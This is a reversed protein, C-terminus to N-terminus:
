AGPRVLLDLVHARGHEAFRNELAKVEAETLPEYAGDKGPRVWLTDAGEPDGYWAQRALVRTLVKNTQTHPLERAVRVYRPRWTPSLDPQDAQWAAFGAPDFEAGDRLVVAAMAQDGAAEDPVGYVAALVVDPHRALIRAVPASGFNEGGVRVWEGSRGAFFVLGDADRYALDGSWYWGERLRDATAADNNWYGEFAGAGDLNVLEGVAEDANLLRGSADFRGPPCEERTEPDLIRINGNPKGLAGSPMDAVPTFSLGGETSGFGDRVTCGFRRAFREVDQPGGENGFVRTLPNDADDPLEPTALIYSLPKGVYNAYTVGYARVDPLFGSASFRRRLVLSAGAAVAPAWCTIMANSHFLPMACYAVDEGTLRQMGVVSMGQTAIKGQSCVVAKPHGTTGSTLILMFPDDLTPEAEPLAAGAYPALAEAWGPEDVNWVREAPFDPLADRLQAAHAAGTILMTCGTHEVDRALEGGQRTPNLGVVVAGSVAAAALLFSFEPVNELLVGVHFPRGPDRQDALFAARQASLAVHEDWTWSRDEYRLAVSPDGARRRVLDNVSVSWRGAM